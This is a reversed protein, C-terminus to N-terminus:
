FSASVFSLFIWITQKKKRKLVNSLVMRQQRFVASNVRLCSAPGDNVSFLFLLLLHLGDSLIVPNNHQPM